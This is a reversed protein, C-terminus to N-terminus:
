YGARSLFAAAHAKLKERAWRSLPSSLDVLDNPDIEAKLQAHAPESIVLRSDFREGSVPARGAPIATYSIGKELEAVLREKADSWIRLLITRVPCRADMAMATAREVVDPPWSFNIRVRVGNQDAQPRIAQVPKVSARQRPALPADNGAPKIAKDASAPPPAPQEPMITAAAPQSPEISPSPAMELKAAFDPDRATFVSRKRERAMM